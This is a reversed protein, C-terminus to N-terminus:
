DNVSMVVRCSDFGGRGNQAPFRRCDIEEIKKWCHGVGCDDELLRGGWRDMLSSFREAQSPRACGDREDLSWKRIQADAENLESLEVSYTKRGNECAAGNTVTVKGTARLARAGGTEYGRVGAETLAAVLATADQDLSEGVSVRAKLDIAAASVRPALAIAALTLAAAFLSSLRNPM